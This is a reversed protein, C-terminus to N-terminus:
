LAGQPKIEIGAGQKNFIDRIKQEERPSLRRGDVPVLILYFMQEKKYRDQDASIRRRLLGENVEITGRETDYFFLGNEGEGKRDLKLTDFGITASRQVNGKDREDRLRAEAKGARERELAVEVNLTRIRKALREELTLNDREKTSSDDDAPPVLPMLLFAGFLLTLVDILPIFFRTVSRQPMRLM